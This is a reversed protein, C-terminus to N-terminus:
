LLGTLQNLVLGTPLKPYFFTSKRPLRHGQGVIEEFQDMPFPKLLFAAQRVGSAVGAVAEDHDHIFGLHDLTTEGLIPKLVQEELIWAESVGLSGWKKWDLGEKLTLLQPIMDGPEDNLGFIGMAHGNKGLQAVQDVLQQAPNDGSADGPKSDFIQFLRDRVQSLKDATLGGLVRHYPMVLLGPDDFGILTMMVFNHALSADGGNASQRNKNRQYQLASEYRHHGDALYVPIDDFFESILKLLEPDTVRWQTTRDGQGDLLDVVPQSEMVRQFVSELQNESDRYISMIPSFNAGCAEM